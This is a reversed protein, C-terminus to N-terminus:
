GHAHRNRLGFSGAAEREANHSAVFAGDTVRLLDSRVLGIDALERDSLRALEKVANENARRTALWDGVRAVGAGIRAMLSRAETQPLTERDDTFYHTLRSPMMMAIEEKAVRTTMTQMWNQYATAPTPSM